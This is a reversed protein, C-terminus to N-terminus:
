LGQLKPWQELHTASSQARAAAAASTVAATLTCSATQQRATLQNPEGKPILDVCEPPMMDRGVGVVSSASGPKMQPKAAAAALEQQQKVVTLALPLIVQVPLSPPYVCSVCCTHSHQKNM